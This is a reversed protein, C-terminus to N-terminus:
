QFIKEALIQAYRNRQEPNACYKVLEIETESCSALWPFELLHEIYAQPVAPSSHLENLTDNSPANM